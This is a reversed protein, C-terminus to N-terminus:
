TGSTWVSDNKIKDCAVAYGIGASSARQMRRAVEKMDQQIAIMAESAAAFFRAGSLVSITRDFSQLLNDFANALPVPGRTIIGLVEGNGDFLPGGASSPDVSTDIQIMTADERPYLSSVIGAHCTLCWHERVYGLFAASLGIRPGHEAFTFQHPKQEILDPLDLIAYGNSGKDSVACVADQIQEFSFSHDAEAPPTDHFRVALRADSPIELSLQRTTVLKRSVFFGTGSGLREKGKHIILHVVGSRVRAVLEELGEISV